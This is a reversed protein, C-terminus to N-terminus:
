RELDVLQRLREEWTLNEDVQIRSTDEKPTPVKYTMHIGRMALATSAFTAQRVPKDQSFSWSGKLTVIVEFESTGPRNAM